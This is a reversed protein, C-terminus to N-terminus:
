PIIVTTHIESLWLGSECCLLLTTLLVFCRMGCQKVTSNSLQCVKSLQCVLKGSDWRADVKSKPVCCYSSCLCARVELFNLMYQSNTVQIKVLAKGLFGQLERSREDLFDPDFRGVLLLHTNFEIAAM